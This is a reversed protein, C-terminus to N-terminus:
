YPVPTSNHHEVVYFLYLNQFSITTHKNQTIENTKNMDLHQLKTYNTQPLTIESSKSERDSTM